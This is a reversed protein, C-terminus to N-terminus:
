ITGMPTGAKAQRRAKARKESVGVTLFENRKSMGAPCRFPFLFHGSCNSFGRGTWSQLRRAEPKISLRCLRTLGIATRAIPGIIPEFRQVQLPAIRALPLARFTTGAAAHQMPRTPLDCGAAFM